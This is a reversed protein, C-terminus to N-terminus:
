LPDLKLLISSKIVLTSGRPVRMQEDLMCPVTKSAEPMWTSPLVALLYTSIALKDLDM